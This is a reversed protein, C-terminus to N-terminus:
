GFWRGLGITPDVLRTGLVVRFVERPEPLPHLLEARLPLGIDISTGSTMLLYKSASARRSVSAMTASNVSSPTTISSPSVQRPALPIRAHRSPVAARYWYVVWTNSVSLM